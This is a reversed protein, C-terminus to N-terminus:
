RRNRRKFISKGFVALSQEERTLRLSFIWRRVSKFSIKHRLSQRILPDDIRRLLHLAEIGFNSDLITRCEPLSLGYRVGYVEHIIRLYEDNIKDRDASFGGDRYCVFRMSKYVGRAGSLYMRLMFKYDAAIPYRLDFLGCHTFIERKVVLAQHCVPLNYCTSLIDAPKLRIKDEKFMVTDACFFDAQGEELATVAKQLVTADPYYDDSNIFVLYKGQAAAIGKNYADYIGRDPESIYRSIKGCRLYDDLLEVTGDDSGGDVILHEVAPCTQAHVSEVMQRFTDVRGSRYLNYTASVVTILVAPLDAEAAVGFSLTAM